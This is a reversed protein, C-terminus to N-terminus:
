PVCVSSLPSSPGPAWGPRNKGAKSLMICVKTSSCPLKSFRLFYSLLRTGHSLTNGWLLQSLRSAGAQAGVPCYPAPRSTAPLIPGLCSARYIPLAYTGRSQGQSRHPVTRRVCHRSQGGVGLSAVARASESNGYFGTSSHRLRCQSTPSHM